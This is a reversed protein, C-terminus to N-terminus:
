MGSSEVPAIAPLAQNPIIAAAPEATDPSGGLLTKVNKPMVDLEDYDFYEVLRHRYAMTEERSPVHFGDATSPEGVIVSGHMGLLMHPICHYNYTGEVTFTHSWSADIERLFPSDFGESGNPHGGPYTVVNHDEKHVNWWTVTDGAKVQLVKPEFYMRMNDIDTIVDVVHHTPEAAIAALPFLCNLLATIRFIKM